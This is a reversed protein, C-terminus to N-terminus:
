RTRSTPARVPPRPSRASPAPPCPCWAVDAGAGPRESRRPLAHPATHPAQGLREPLRQEGEDHGPHHDGPREPQGVEDDVPGMGDVGPTAARTCWPRSPQSAPQYSVCRGRLAVPGEAVLRQAEEGRDRQEGVRQGPDGPEAVARGEDSRALAAASAAVAM